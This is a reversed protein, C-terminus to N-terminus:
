QESEILTATEPMPRPQLDRLSRRPLFLARAFEALMFRLHRWGDRFSSLKSTSSDPRPRYEIPVEAIRLGSQAARVLLETAFEMGDSILQMSQLSRRTMARMGCHGDSVKLGFLANMIFTLLPVGVYRHLPPMAGPLIRGRVRSGTVLDASGELIPKLLVELQDFPYTCDADGIVIVDGRAHLFGTRLARGYGRHREFIVTAHSERARDATPDASNNDVVIIEVELFGLQRLREVPVMTIASKITQAEDLAPLVVSISVAHSSGSAYAQM